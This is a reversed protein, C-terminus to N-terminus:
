IVESAKYSSRVLPGSIVHPMGMQKAIEEIQKFEEPSYYKKVEFHNASPQLYQGITVIDCDVRTLDGITQIIQNEKEGFGLMFGSKTKIKPNLEKAKKLLQLSLEYSGKPRLRPFLENVVELNHNLVDPKSDIIKNLAEWDGKLDSILLEVRCGPNIKRTAAVTKVFQSAGSDALDDRTVCTIVVYNLKMTKVAEAIREPEGKDLEKPVGHLINCYLCNRTCTDGLIMFTATGNSFCEYRNPCNAEVCVTTLRNKEILEKTKMYDKKNYHEVEIWLPLAKKM